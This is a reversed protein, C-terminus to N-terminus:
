RAGAFIDTGARGQIGTDHYIDAQKGKTTLQYRGEADIFWLSYWNGEVAKRFHTGWDRYRAKDDDRYRQTFAHWCLELFERPLGVRDAYAFVHHGEPILEEGEVPSDNWEQYTMGNSVRKKGKTSKRPARGLVTSVTVAGELEFTRVKQELHGSRGANAGTMTDAGERSRASVTDVADPLKLTYDYARWSKGTLKVERRTFWRGNADHFARSCTKESQSTMAALRPFGPIAGSGDPNAFEALALLALKMSAPEVSNLVAARWRLIFPRLKREDAM